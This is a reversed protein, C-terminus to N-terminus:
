GDTAETTPAALAARFDKAWRTMQRHIYLVDYGGAEAMECWTGIHDRLRVVEAEAAALRSALVYETGTVGFTPHAWYPKGSQWFALIREPTTMSDPWTTRGRVHDGKHEEVLECSLGNCRSLCMREPTAESAMPADPLHDRRGAYTDRMGDSM